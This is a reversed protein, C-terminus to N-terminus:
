LVDVVPLSPPGRKVARGWATEGAGRAGGKEQQAFRGPTRWHGQVCAATVQLHLLPREDIVFLTRPPNRKKLTRTLKGRRWAKQNEMEISQTSSLGRLM